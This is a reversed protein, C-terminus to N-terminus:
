LSQVLAHVIEAARKAARDLFIKFDAIQSPADLRDSISRIMLFPINELTAVHAVAAAEMDTAYIDEYLAMMDKLTASNTLFQDGSVVMGVYSKYGHKKACELAIQLTNEDAKFYPSMGPLQGKVYQGFARVDVDHYAVSHALVLSEPDLNIGGSVGTSIILDLPKDQILKTAAIAANVKGIGCEVLTIDHAGIRTVYANLGAIQRTQYTSLQATFAQREEPMAYLLGIHM